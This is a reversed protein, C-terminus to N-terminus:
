QGGAQQLLQLLSPQNGAITAGAGINPLLSRMEPSLLPHPLMSGQYGKSLLGARLAPRTVMAGLVYPNHAYLGYGGGIGELINIPVNNKLSKADRTVNPFNEAVKAIDSLQGTLPVGKNAAKALAKASVDTTNKYLSNEVTNIKALQQRANRFKQILAPDFAPANSAQAPRATDEGTIVKIPDLKPNIYSIVGNPHTVETWGNRHFEDAAKPDPTLKKIKLGNIDTPIPTEPTEPTATLHREIQAEIADAVHKQAYGLANQDPAFPARINKNASARLQRIHQVADASNFEPVSYAQKLNAIAPNQAAPFSEGPTQGIGSIDAQYAKDTPIKGVKSVEQYVANYPARAEKLAAPTLAANKPLGIAEAALGNTVKQNKLAAATELKSSGSLGEVLRGVPAVGTESPKLKYGLNLAHTVPTEPATVPAKEPAKGMGALLPLTNATINLFTTAGAGKQAKQADTLNQDLGQSYAYRRSAGYAKDLLSSPASMVDGAAKQVAYNAADTKLGTSPTGITIRPKDLFQQTNEMYKQSQNAATEGPTVAGKILGALGALGTIPAEVAHAGVNAIGQMTGALASGEPQPQPAQHIQPFNKQIAAAMDAQSMGDPFQLTGVGKVEVTQTM